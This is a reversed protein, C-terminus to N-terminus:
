YQHDPNRVRDLLRLPVNSEMVLAYSLRDYTRFVMVTGAQEDPLRVKRPILGTAFRDRVEEGAQWISLVHGPQMGHRAGRNIAVIQYQGIRTVGDVVHMIQGDVAMEPARPYFLLPLPAQPELLRDGELVERSTERLMITAPDGRREVSGEGVYVGEYGLVERNDPDVLADGVHVITYNSGGNLEGRVYARNGAGGILRGEELAVVYPLRQLQDRELVAGRSLFPGIVEWPIAPIADALAQERIRPSLRQTDGSVAPGRELRIQPRGDVYVLTLVDGPFILHPNEVQPNVYWIEPWFWPDRLFRAAIDWLTDGRQVVYREPHQPNLVAGAAQQAAVSSALSSALVAGTVLTLTAIIAPLALQRAAGPQIIKM